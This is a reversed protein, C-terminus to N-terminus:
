RALSGRDGLLPTLSKQVPLKIHVRVKAWAHRGTVLTPLQLIHQSVVVPWMRCTHSMQSQVHYHALNQFGISMHACSWAAKSLSMCMHDGFDKCTINHSRSERGSDLRSDLSVWLCVSASNINCTQLLVDQLPVGLSPM